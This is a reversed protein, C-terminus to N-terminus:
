GRSINGMVGRREKRTITGYIPCKDADYYGTGCSSCYYFDRKYDLRNM